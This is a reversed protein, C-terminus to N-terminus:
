NFYFRRQLVMATILKQSFTLGTIIELKGKLMGNYGDEVIDWAFAPRKFMATKDMASIRGFQTETAGPM